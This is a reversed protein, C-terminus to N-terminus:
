PPYRHYGTEEIDRDGGSYADVGPQYKNWVFRDPLVHGPRFDRDKEDSKVKLNDIIRIYVFMSTLYFCGQQLTAISQKQKRNAFSRVIIPSHLPFPPILM